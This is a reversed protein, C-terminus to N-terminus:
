KVRVGRGRSAAGEAILEIGRRARAARLQGATIMRNRDSEYILPHYINDKYGNQHTL